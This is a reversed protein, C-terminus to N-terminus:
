YLFPSAAAWEEGQFLMPIFPSLLVLASAIKLKGLSLLQGSRDGTARNGIQDHNQLYGLFRHGSLGPHPRGHTRRRFNSYRGDYVWAHRLAKALDAFTGF